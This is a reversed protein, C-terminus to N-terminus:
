ARVGPGEIGEQIVETIPTLTVICVYPKDEWETDNCKPCPCDGDKMMESELMRRRHVHTMVYGHGQINVAPGHLDQQFRRWQPYKGSTVTITGGEESHYLCRDYGDLTDKLGETDVFANPNPRQTM